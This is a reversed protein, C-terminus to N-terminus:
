QHDGTIWVLPRSTCARLLQLFGGSPPEGVSHEQRAVQAIVYEASAAVVRREDERFRRGRAIEYEDIFARAEDHTPTSRLRCVV